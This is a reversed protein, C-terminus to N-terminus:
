KIGEPNKLQFNYSDRCMDELNHSCYFGIEKQAKSSDAYSSDIDGPRRPAIEYNIKISNYYRALTIPNCSM